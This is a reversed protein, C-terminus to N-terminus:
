AGWGKPRPTIPKSSRSKRRPRRLLTAADMAPNSSELLENVPRPDALYTRWGEATAAVFAGVMEPKRKLLERRTIVVTAYPNFGADAILFVQPDAGKCRARRHARLDRLVTPRLRTPSSGRWAATM